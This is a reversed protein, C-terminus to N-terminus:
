WFVFIADYKCDLKVLISSVNSRTTEEEINM